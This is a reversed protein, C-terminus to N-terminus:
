LRPVVRLAPNSDGDARPARNKLSAIAKTINEAFHISAYNAAFNQWTEPGTAAVYLNQVAPACAPECITAPASVVEPASCNFKVM